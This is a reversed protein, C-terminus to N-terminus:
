LTGPTNVAQRKQITRIESSKGVNQSGETSLCNPNIVDVCLSKELFVLQYCAGYVLSCAIAANDVKMMM